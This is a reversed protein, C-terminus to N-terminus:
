IHKLFYTVMEETTSNQDPSNKLVNYIEGRQYGLGMLAQIVEELHQDLTNSLEQYNEPHVKGKLDLIIREATKKGIGPVKSLFAANEQLIANKVQNVDSNLIELATKPGVGNVGLLLRFFDLDSAKAFGFLSLDDERVKTYIFYEKKSGIEATELLSNSLYIEYGVSGALLIITNKQKSIVQGTLFGIM